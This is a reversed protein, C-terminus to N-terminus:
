TLEWTNDVLSAPEKWLFYISLSCISSRPDGRLVLKKSGLKQRGASHTCLHGPPLMQIVLLVLTIKKDSPPVFPPLKIQVNSLRYCTNGVNKDPACGFQPSPAPFFDGVKRSGRKGKGTRVSWSQSQRLGRFLLLVSQVFTQPEHAVYPCSSFGQITSLLFWVLRLLFIAASSWASTPLRFGPCLPHLLPIPPAGERSFCLLPVTLKSLHGTLAELINGDKRPLFWWFNLEATIVVFWISLRSWLM